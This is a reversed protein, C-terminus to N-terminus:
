AVRYSEEIPGVVKLKCSIDSNGLGLLLRSAVVCKKGTQVAIKESMSISSFAQSTGWSSISAKLCSSDAM